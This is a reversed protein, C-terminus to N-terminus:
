MNKKRGKKRKKRKRERESLNKQCEKKNESM